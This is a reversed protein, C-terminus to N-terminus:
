AAPKLIALLPDLQKVIRDYLPRNLSQDFGEVYRGLSSYIPAKILVTSKQAQINKFMAEMQAHISLDHSLADRTKQLADRFVGSAGASKFEGAIANLYAGFHEDAFRPNVLAGAQSFHLQTERLETYRTMFMVSLYTSLDQRSTGQIDYDIIKSTLSKSDHIFNDSTLDLNLLVEVSKGDKGPQASLLALQADAYGMGKMLEQVAPEDFDPVGYVINAGSKGTVSDQIVLSNEGHRITGFTEPFIRKKVGEKYFDQKFFDDQKPNSKGIKAVFEVPESQGNIRVKVRYATQFGGGGLKEISEIKSKGIGHANLTKSRIVQEAMGSWGENVNGFFTGLEQDSASYRGITSSFETKSLLPSVSGPEKTLGILERTVGERYSRKLKDAELLAVHEARADGQSKALQARKTFHNWQTEAPDLLNKLLKHHKGFVDISPPIDPDLALITNIVVKEEQSTMASSTLAQKRLDALLAKAEAVRSEPRKLLGKFWNMWGKPQGMYERTKDFVVRQSDTLSNRFLQMARTKIFADRSNLRLGGGSVREPQVISRLIQYDEETKAIGPKFPKVYDSYSRVYNYNLPILRSRHAVSFTSTLRTELIGAQDLADMFKIFKDETDAPLLDSAHNKPVFMFRFGEASDFMLIEDSLGANEFASAALQGEHEWLEAHAAALAENDLNTAAARARLEALKADAKVDKVFDDLLNVGSKELEKATKQLAANSQKAPFCPDLCFGEKLKFKVKLYEKWEEWRYRASAAKDKVAKWVNRITSSQVQSVTPLQAHTKATVFGEPVKPKVRTPIKGKFKAGFEKAKEFAERYHFDKVSKVLIVANFIVGCAKAKEASVPIGTYQNIIRYAPDELLHIEYNTIVVVAIIGAVKWYGPLSGASRFMVPGLANSSAAFLAGAACSPATDKSLLLTAVLSTTDAWKKKQANEAFYKKELIDSLILKEEANLRSVGQFNDRNNLSKRIAGAHGNVLEDASYINDVAILRNDQTTARIIDYVLSPTGSYSSAMFSNHGAIALGMRGFNDKLLQTPNDDLRPGSTRLCKLQFLFEVPPMEGRETFATIAAIPAEEKLCQALVRIGMRDDPTLMTEALIPRLEPSGGYRFKLRAFDLVAMGFVHRARAAYLVTNDLKQELLDAVPAAKTRYIQFIASIVPNFNNQVIFRDGESAGNVLYSDSLSSVPLNSAAYIVSAPITKVCEDDIIPKTQTNTNYGSPIASRTLKDMLTKVGEPTSAAPSYLCDYLAETADQQNKTYDPFESGLYKQFGADLAKIDTADRLFDSEHNLEAVALQRFAMYDFSPTNGSEGSSDAHILAAFSALVLVM